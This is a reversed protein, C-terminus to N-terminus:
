WTRMDSLNFGLCYLAVLLFSLIVSTFYFIRARKEGAKMTTKYDFGCAILMISATICFTLMM